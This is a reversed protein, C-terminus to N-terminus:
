RKGDNIATGIISLQRNLARLLVQYHLANTSLKAVEQDLQVASGGSPDATLPEHEIAPQLGDLATSDVAGSGELQSRLAALQEEFRVRVPRYGPTNVNAINAAIAQQRLTSADLALSVVTATTGEIGFSM